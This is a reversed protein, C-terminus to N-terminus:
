VWSHDYYRATGHLWKGELILMALYILILVGHLVDLVSMFVGAADQLFLEGEGQHPLYDNGAPATRLLLVTALGSQPVLEQLVGAANGAFDQVGGHVGPRDGANKTTDDLTLVPHPADYGFERSGPPSSCACVEPKVTPSDYGFSRCRRHRPLLFKRNSFFYFSILPWLWGFFVM